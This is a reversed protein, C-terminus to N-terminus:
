FAVFVDRRSLFKSYASTNSTIVAKQKHVCALGIKHQPLRVMGMNVVSNGNPYM